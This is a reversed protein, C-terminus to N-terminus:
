DNNDENFSLLQRVPAPIGLTDVTDVKYWVARNSEMVFHRPNETHVVLATYDLHFHSFTHRRPRLTRQRLIPFDREQCWSLAADTNSYEPFSWLGGWIGTEPRKELLIYKGSDDKLLLFVCHKTPMARGPRRGPLSDIRQELRARCEKNLPCRQCLPTSRLCVTAGLDMIAQTYDAARNRPTCAASLRWLEVAVRNEGPWGPVAYFRSLVRKVNGDLIAHSDNFAISLIAGATSRGIGPLKTLADLTDPFREQRAILQAARHLNRARAYYGLGSWAALVADVPAGALTQIDPFREMFRQYYPIVAAVQTQQLMIESVWVPYPEPSQQWPLDKRGHRDFWTLVRAAFTQGTMCPAATNISVAQRTM